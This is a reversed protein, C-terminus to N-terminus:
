GTTEVRNESESTTYYNGSAAPRLMGGHRLGNFSFGVEYDHVPCIVQLGKARRNWCDHQNWSDSSAEM